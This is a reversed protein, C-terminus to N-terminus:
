ADPADFPRFASRVIGTGAACEDHIRQEPRPRRGWVQGELLNHWDFELLRVSELHERQPADESVLKLAAENAELFARRTDEFDEWLVEPKLVSGYHVIVSMRKLSEQQLVGQLIVEQSHNELAMAQRLRFAMNLAVVTIVIFLLLPFGIGM